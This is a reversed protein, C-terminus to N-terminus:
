ERRGRHLLHVAHVDQTQAASIIKMHYNQSLLQVIFAIIILINPKGKGFLM